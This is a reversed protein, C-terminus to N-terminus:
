WLKLYEGYSGWPTSEGQMHRLTHQKKTDTHAGRAAASAAVELTDGGDVAGVSEALVQRVWADEMGTCWPTTQPMTTYKYNKALPAYSTKPQCM